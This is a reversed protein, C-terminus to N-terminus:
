GGIVADAQNYNIRRVLDRRVWTAFKFGTKLRNKYATYEKVYILRYKWPQEFYILEHNAKAEPDSNWYDFTKHWDVDSPAGKLKGDVIKLKRKYKRVEIHGLGHPLKPMAGDLMETAYWRNLTETITNFVDKTLWKPNDMLKKVENYIVTTRKVNIPKPRNLKM